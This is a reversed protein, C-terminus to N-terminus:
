EPKRQKRAPSFKSGLTKVVGEPALTKVEEPKAFVPRHFRAPMSEGADAQGTPREPALTRAEQRGPKPDLREVPCNFHSSLLRIVGQRSAPVLVTASLPNQYAFRDIRRCYNDIQSPLEWSILHQLKPITLANMAAESGVLVGHGQQTVKDVVAQKVDLQMSYALLEGGLRNSALRDVIHESIRDSHTVILVVSGSWMRILDALRDFKNEEDAIVVYLKVQDGSWRAERHALQVKEVRGPNCLWRGREVLQETLTAACILTQRDASLHSVIEKLQDEHKLLEDFEDLGLSQMHSVYEKERRMFRDAVGLELIVLPAKALLEPYFYDDQGTFKLVRAKLLPCLRSIVKDLQKAAGASATLILGTRSRDRLWHQLFPISFCASKGMGSRAEFIVDKSALALPIVQQQLETPKEFRAEKVAEQLKRSLGFDEFRHYEAM